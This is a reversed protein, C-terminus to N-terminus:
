VPRQSWGHRLAYIAAETRSVRRVSCFDGGVASVSHYLHSFRAASDEQSVGEPFSPYSRPLFAKQLEAAMQLDSEMEDCLRRNEEAYKAARILTKKHDTIDRSMGFTGVIRGASDRLPMKTTSVWTEHGDEWTEKEEKGVMPTGTEIIRQEDELAERGHEETFIDLDSKGILDAPSDVGIRSSFEDNVLIFRGKRDKFYILDKIHDMLQSMMLDAKDPDFNM